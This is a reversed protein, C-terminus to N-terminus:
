DLFYIKDGKELNCKYCAPRLNSLDNSGGRSLPIVHDITDAPTGGCIYCVKGYTKRILNKKKHAKKRLSNYRKTSDKAQKTTVLLASIL